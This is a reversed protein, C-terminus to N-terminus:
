APVHLNRHMNKKAVNNINTKCNNKNESYVKYVHVIDKDNNKKKLNWSIYETVSTDFPDAKCHIDTQQYMELTFFVICPIQCHVHVVIHCIGVGTHIHGM